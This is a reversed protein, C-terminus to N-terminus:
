RDAERPAIRVALNPTVMELGEDVEGAFGDPVLHVKMSLTAVIHGFPLGSEAFSEVATCGTAEVHEEIVSTIVLCIRDDTTPLAYFAVDPLQIVLRSYSFALTGSEDPLLDAAIQPPLEDEAERPDALLSLYDEAQGDTV